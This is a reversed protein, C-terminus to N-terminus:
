AVDSGALQQCPEGTEGEHRVNLGTETGRTAELETLAILCVDKLASETAHMGKKEAFRQLDTLVDIMWENEM